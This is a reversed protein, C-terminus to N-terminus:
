ADEIVQHLRLGNNHKIDIPHECGILEALEAMRGAGILVPLAIHQRFVRIGMDARDRLELAEYLLLPASM